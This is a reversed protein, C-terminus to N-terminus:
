SLNVGDFSLSVPGQLQYASSGAILGGDDLSILVPGLGGTVVFLVQQNLVLTSSKLVVSVGKIFNLCRVNALSITGSTSVDLTALNHLAATPAAGINVADSQTVPKGVLSM